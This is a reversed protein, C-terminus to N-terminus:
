RVAPNGQHPGDPRTLSEPPPLATLIPTVGQMGERFRMHYYWEDNIEFPEVGRSIPHDPFKEFKATWHPNVSWNMEFYGCIWDLFRDGGKGKEVRAATTSGSSAWAKRPWRM